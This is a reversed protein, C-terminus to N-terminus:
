RPSLNRARDVFHRSSLIKLHTATAINQKALFFITTLACAMKLTMIAQDGSDEFMKGSDRVDEKDM